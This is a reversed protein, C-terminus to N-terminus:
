HRNKNHLPLVNKLLVQGYGQYNDPPSALEFSDLFVSESDYMPDSYRRVPNGSHLILGKLLYGSPAFSGDKCRKYAKNCTSAWFADDMFYQRILLASGAAAPAAMSTGSMQHAACSEHGNWAAGQDIAARLLDPPGSFASEIFDGPAIIDPKM